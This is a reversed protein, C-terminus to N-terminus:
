REVRGQARTIREREGPNTPKHDATLDLAEWGGGPSARGLVCRSDGVWATTLQRGQLARARRRAPRPPTAPDPRASSRFAAM